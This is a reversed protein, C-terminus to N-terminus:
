KKIIFIINDSYENSLKENVSIKSHKKVIDISKNVYNYQAKSDEYVGLIKWNTNGFLKIWAHLSLITVHDPAQLTYSYEKFFNLISGVVPVSFIMTCNIKSSAYLKDLILKPDEIHELAQNSIILDVNEFPIDSYSKFTDPDTSYPDYSFGTLRLIGIAKLFNIYYSSGSGFDLVSPNYKKIHDTVIKDYVSIPRYLRLFRSFFSNSTYRITRFYNVKVTSNNIISYYNENYNTNIYNNDNLYYSGCFKCIQYKYNTLGDYFYNKLNKIEFSKNGCYCAEM